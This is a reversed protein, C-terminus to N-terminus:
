WYAVQNVAARGETSLRDAEDFNGDTFAVITRTDLLACAYSPPLYGVRNAVEIYWKMPCSPGCLCPLVGLERSCQRVKLGAPKLRMGVLPKLWNARRKFDGQVSFVIANTLRASADLWLNPTEKLLNSALAIHRRALHVRGSDRKLGQSLLTHKLSSWDIPRGTVAKLASACLPLSVRYDAGSEALRELM